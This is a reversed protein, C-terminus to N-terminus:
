PAVLKCRIVFRTLDANNRVGLSALKSIANLRHTDVTKVSIEASAAIERNTRGGAIAVVVERERPSLKEFLDLDSLAPRAPETDATAQM